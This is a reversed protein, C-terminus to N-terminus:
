EPKSKRKYYAGAEFSTEGTKLMLEIYPACLSCGCSCYKQDQLEKVTTIDNEEIYAKIESFDKKHCICKSVTFKSM